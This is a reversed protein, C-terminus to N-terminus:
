PDIQAEQAANVTWITESNHPQSDNNWRARWLNNNPDIVDKRKPAEAHGEAFMLVTRRNHRNSPWETPNTPDINGDFNGDPKSDGLMIMESPKVVLTEPIEGVGPVNV